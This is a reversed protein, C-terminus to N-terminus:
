EQRGLVFGLQLAAKKWSIKGAAAAASVLLGLAFHNPV